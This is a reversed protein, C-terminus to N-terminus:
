ADVGHRRFLAVFFETLAQSARRPESLEYGGFRYVEYGALRLSRDAKVTDAYVAPSPKANAGEGEAYHHQGDIEVVVRVHDRLLLLFDMRQVLFRREEGRRKLEWLSVPDYHLYVQPLLAPLKDGLKASFQRFYEVFLAREAPSGLSQMLRQGLSKRVEPAKPDSGSRHAWWSVLAEWTLGDEAIDNEYILCHEAHKLITVDNDIADRFGLEPKPGTSAFILNKPKKGRGALHQVSFLPRKSVRGTEVLALQDPALVKNLLAVWERQESERRRVIPHVLQELFIFVRKDPWRFFGHEELLSSLPVRTFSPEAPRGGFLAFLDPESKYLLGDSGYAIKPATWTRAVGACRAVFAGPDEDEVLVRGDLDRALARRTIESVSETGNSDIWWLADQLAARPRETLIDMARRGLALLEDENLGDLVARVYKPKGWGPKLDPRWAVGVRQHDTEIESWSGQSLLDSLAERLSGTLALRDRM